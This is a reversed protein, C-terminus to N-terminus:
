KSFQVRMNYLNKNEFSFRSKLIFKLNLTKFKILPNKYKLIPFFSFLKVM